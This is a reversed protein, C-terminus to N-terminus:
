NGNTVAPKFGWAETVAADPQWQICQAAIEYTFSYGHPPTHQNDLTPVVTFLPKTTAGPEVLEKYYYYGGRETWYDTNITYHFKPHGKDTHIVKQGGEYTVYNGTFAARVYVKINSTSKVEGDDSAVECEVVAPTFTNTVMASRTLLYAVTGGIALCLALVLAAALLTVKRNGINITKMMKRNEM